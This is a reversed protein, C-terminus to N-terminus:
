RWLQTTLRLSFSSTGIEKPWAPHCSKGSFQCPLKSVIYSFATTPSLPPTLRVGSYSVWGELVNAIPYCPISCQPPITCTYAVAQYSYHTPVQIVLNMTICKDHCCSIDCVCEVAESCPLFDARELGKQWAPYCEPSGGRFAVPSSSIDYM